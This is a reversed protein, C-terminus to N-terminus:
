NSGAVAKTPLLFFSCFVLKDSILVSQLTFISYHVFVSFTTSSYRRYHVLHSLIFRAPKPVHHPSFFRFPFARFSITPYSKSRYSPQAYLIHFISVLPCRPCAPHGVVFLQFSPSLSLFFPSTQRHM